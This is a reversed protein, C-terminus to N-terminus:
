ADVSTPRDGTTARRQGALPLHGRRRLQAHPRRLRRGPQRDVPWPPWNWRSCRRAAAHGATNIWWGTTPWCSRWTRSVAVDGASVTRWCRTAASATSPTTSAWPRRSRPVRLRGLDGAHRPQVAEKLADSVTDSGWPRWCPTAADAAPALATSAARPGRRDRGLGGAAQRGEVVAKAHRDLHGAVGADLVALQTRPGGVGTTHSWRDLIAQRRRRTLPRAARRTSRGRRAKLAAPPSTTPRARARDCQQLVSRRAPRRLSSFRHHSSELGEPRGANSGAVETGARRAAADRGGQVPVLDHDDHDDQWVAGSDIHFAYDLDKSFRHGVIAM